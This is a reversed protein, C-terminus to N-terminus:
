NQSITFMIDVANIADEYLYIEFESGDESEFVCVTLPYEKPDDPVMYNSNITSTKKYGSEIALAIFKDFEDKTAEDFIVRIHVEKLQEYCTSIFSPEINVLETFDPMDGDFVSIYEDWTDIESYDEIVESPEEQGKTEETPETQINTGTSNEMDVPIADWNYTDLEEKFIIFEGDISLYGGPVFKSVDNLNITTIEDQMLIGDSYGGGVSSASWKCVVGDVDITYFRYEGISFQDFVETSIDTTAAVFDTVGDVEVIRGGTVSVNTGEFISTDGWYDSDLWYILNKEEDIRARGNEIDESGNLLENWEKDINQTIPQTSWAVLIDNERRIAYGQETRAIDVINSRWNSNFFLINNVNLLFTQGDKLYHAQGDKDLVAFNSHLIDYFDVTLTDPQWKIFDSAMGGISGGTIRLGDNNTIGFSIDEFTGISKINEWNNVDCQGAVNYGCAAVTGDTKLGLIYTHNGNHGSGVSIDTIDTWNSVEGLGAGDFGAMIVTGDKKLGFTQNGGFYSNAMWIKTIDTWDSVECEGFQNEGLSVVAGDDKLGVIHTYDYYINSIDKWDSFDLGYKKPRGVSEITGDKKLGIIFSDNDDAVIDVIDTWSSTDINKYEEFIEEDGESYVKHQKGIIGDDVYTLVRGDSTLGCIFYNGEQVKIIEEDNFINFGRVKYNKSEGNEYYGIYERYSIVGKKSPFDIIFIDNGIYEVPCAQELEDYYYKQKLEDIVDGYETYYEELDIEGKEYVIADPYNEKFDYPNSGYEYARHPNDTVYDFMDIAIPIDMKALENAITEHVWEILDSNFINISVYEGMQGFTNNDYVKYVDRIEFGDGIFFDVVKTAPLSSPDPDPMTTPASEEELKQGKETIHDAEQKTNNCSSFLLTISLIGIILIKAYKM